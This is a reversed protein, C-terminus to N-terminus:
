CHRAGLLLPLSHWNNMLHERWLSPSKGGKGFMREEVAHSPLKLIRALEEVLKCYQEYDESTVRDTVTVRLEQYRLTKEAKKKSTHDIQVSPWSRQKTLMHISRATWQDLIYADALQSAFFIIKTYYAPGMGPLKNNTRMSRFVEFAELRTYKNNRINECIPMVESRKEWIRRANDLKM